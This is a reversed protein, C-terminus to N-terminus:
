YITFILRFLSIAFVIISVALVTLMIYGRQSFFDFEKYDLQGKKICRLIASLNMLLVILIGALSLYFSSRLLLGEWNTREGMTKVEIAKNHTVCTLINYDSQMNECNYNEAFSAKFRKPYEFRYYIGKTAQSGGIFSSFDIKDVYEYYIKNLSKKELAGGTLSSSQQGEISELFSSTLTSIEESNGATMTVQFVTNVSEQIREYSMQEILRESIREEFRNGIINMQSPTLSFKIIRQYEVESLVTTIVEIKDIDVSYGLSVTIEDPLSVTVYTSCYDDTDEYNCSKIYKYASECNEFSHESSAKLVYTMITDEDSFDLFYSGNLYQTIRTRARLTDEGDSEQAVDFVTDGTHLAQNMKNVYDTEDAANFQITFSKGTESAKSAFSGDEPILAKIMDTLKSGLKTVVAEGAEYTVTVDYSGDDKMITEISIHELANSDMDSMQIYGDSMEYDQQNYALVTKGLIFMEDATRGELTPNDKIFADMMWFFLETSTFTEEIIMGKKLISDSYEFYVSPMNDINYSSSGSFIKCIKDYYDTYSAFPVTMTISVSKDDNVQAVCDISSPCSEDLLQNLHDIDSDFLSKFESSSMTASVIRQGSFTSDFAMRTDVQLPKNSTCSALIFIWGLCILLLIKRNTNRM